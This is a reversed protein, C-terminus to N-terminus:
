YCLYGITGSVVVVFVPNMNFKLLLLSVAFIIYSIYDTFTDGRTLMIAASLILGIAIPRIVRLIHLLYTNGKLRKQFHAAILMLILSPTCLGLLAAFAGLANTGIDYGIYTACNLSIAGPSMQSIAIVDTFETATLWEHNVVVENQILSLMAYGGGFGFIGVKFFAFFLEFYIM